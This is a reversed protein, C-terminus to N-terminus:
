APDGPRRSHEVALLEFYATDTTTGDFTTFSDHDQGYQRFGAAALTLMSAHNGDVTAADLRLLDLGDPSFAHAVVAKLAEGALGRGRAHDYLWYGVTGSRLPTGLGRVGISGLPRDTAADVICWSLSTGDLRGAREQALWEAYAAAPPRPEVGMAGAAQPDAVPEQGPADGDSWARLRLRDTHLVPVPLATARQADRDDSALLEFCYEDGVTGDPFTITSRDIGTQRFGAGRLVRLSALNTTDAYAALRRLGLGGADGPALAHAVVLEVAERMVGRGRATPQLWYALMASGRLMPVNMRFLQIGGLARDTAADAICWVVAEGAAMRERRTLLWEAFDDAAPASGLLFHALAEDQPEAPRDDPRWARLRVGSGALPAPARWPLQPELPDAAHLHGFWTGVVTGDPGPHTGPWSGDVTFGLAWAVRRSAWNGRAARWVVTRMGLTDFAHTVLLRAAATTVGRGRVDPHVGYGIETTRDARPHLNISGAWRGNVEIAWAGQRTGAEWTTRVTDFFERAQDMGYPAPLPVGARSRPDNAFEVIRLLDSERHARLTVVGDSLEPVDDPFVAMVRLLGCAGVRSGM